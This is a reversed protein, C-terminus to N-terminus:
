SPSKTAKGSPCSTSQCQLEAIRKRQLRNESKLKAVEDELQQACHEAELFRAAKSKFKAADVTLQHKEQELQKFHRSYDSLVIKLNSLLFSLCVYECVRARQKCCSENALLTALVVRARLFCGRVKLCAQCSINYKM